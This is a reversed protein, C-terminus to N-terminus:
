GGVLVIGEDATKVGCIREEADYIMVVEVGTLRLSNDALLDAVMKTAGDENMEEALQGMQAETLPALAEWIKYSYKEKVEGSLRGVMADGLRKMLKDASM